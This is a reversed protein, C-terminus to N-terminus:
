EAVGLRRHFPIRRQQRGTADSTPAGPGLPGSRAAPSAAPSSSVPGTPPEAGRQEDVVRVTELLMTEVDFLREDGSPGGDTVLMATGDHWRLVDALTYRLGAPNAAALRGDRFLLRVEAQRGRLILTGSHRRLSGMQLLAGFSFLEDDGFPISHAQKGPLTSSWAPGGTDDAVRQKGWLRM